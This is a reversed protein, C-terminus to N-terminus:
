SSSVLESARLSTESRVKMVRSRKAVPAALAASFALGSGSLRAFTRVEELPVFTGELESTIEPRRRRVM